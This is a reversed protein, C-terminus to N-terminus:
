GLRKQMIQSDLWFVHYLYVGAFFSNKKVVKKLVPFLCQFVRCQFLQVTIQILGNTHKGATCYTLYIEM